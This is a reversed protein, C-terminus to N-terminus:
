AMPVADDISIIERTRWKLDRDLVAKRQYVFTHVSFCGHLARFEFAPQCFLADGESVLFSRM